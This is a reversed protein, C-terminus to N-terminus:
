DTRTVKAARVDEGAHLRLWYHGAAVRAGAANRGDWTFGHSGAAKEQLPWSRVLRGNVDYVAAGVEGAEALTYQLTTAARFPNPQAPQLTLRMRARDGDGVASPVPLDYRFMSRGHTAAVLTRTPAHLRLDHVTVVPLEQGLPLWSQGTDTSVYVGVDNGVYLWSPVDPDVRVVNIPVEPLGQSIDNWTAGGDTTRFIHPLPIDERYGSLTVYATLPEAPDVAVRTVWREPLAGSINAWSGGGDTTRWANGDDVGAYIVDPDSPAVAITTITGFPLSGSGPGNSLDSSIATWNGAGNTTRYVRYTGYYLTQPDSPDMVVPTSWNRRDSSNIGSMAWNFDYGGDTSKYLNGWQYEAYIVNSNAPDVNVYFGDGGFIEEWDNVAGTLTRLTGNDQTGGYLRHPLQEDIEGTYFQTVPLNYLKTWSSGGNTTIDLGGDNGSIMWQGNGPRIWWDHQDVHVSWTINSWSGGGNTSRYTYLGMAYVRDPDQPDVRVNGFYWGFSSYLDDLAGDNVRSWSDGGDTTKYLGMFYGPHDAYIAYITAPESPALALGIRGVDPAAPPLGNELLEWSEGGDASRYLGSTIGGARRDGPRRWREWMAAYVLDPDGPHVALDICGTSDSVFLMQEWSGGGDTSRYVGREPNKSFLAGAAAVYIRDPDQPHIIVRGIHRSEALGSFSWTDGGDTTIYVGTGPYSDGSANAEGTGVIIRDPDSPDIALDGISLSPGDDMLFTWASGGSDSRLVGGFAAGAIIRYPQSPHIDVATIRGGINTPGAPQWTGDWGARQQEGTARLEERQALARAAEQQFVDMRIEGQPYARQIFFWDNPAKPAPRSDGFPNFILVIGACLVAGAALALLVRRM